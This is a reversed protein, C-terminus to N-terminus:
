VPCIFQTWQRTVQGRILYMSENPKRELCRRRTAFQLSPIQFTIQHFRQYNLLFRQPQEVGTPTTRNGLLLKSWVDLSPHKHAWWPTLKFFIPLVCLKNWALLCGEAWSTIHTYVAVGFQPSPKSSIVGAAAQLIRERPQNEKKEIQGLAWFYLHTCLSSYSLHYLSISFIFRLQRGQKKEKNTALFCYYRSM